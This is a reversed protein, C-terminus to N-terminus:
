RKGRRIFVRQREKREERVSWPQEVCTICRKCIRYPAENQFREKVGLQRYREPELDDRLYANIRPNCLAWLVGIHKIKGRGKKKAAAM